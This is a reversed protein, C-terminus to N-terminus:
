QDGGLAKVIIKLAAESRISGMHNKFLGNYFYNSLDNDTLGITLNTAGNLKASGESVFEDQYTGQSVDQMVVTTYTVKHGNCAGKQGFASDGDSCPTEWAGDPGNIPTNFPTPTFAVRDGLECAIIGRM